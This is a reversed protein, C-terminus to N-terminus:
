GFHGVARWVRKHTSELGIEKAIMQASMMNGSIWMAIHSPDLKEDRLEKDEAMPKIDALSHDIHHLLMALRWVDFKRM